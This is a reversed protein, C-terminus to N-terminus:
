TVATVECEKILAIGNWVSVMYTKGAEVTDGMTGTIGNITLVTASASPCSFMFHYQSTATVTVTLESKEGFSYSFPCPLLTHTNGTPSLIRNYVGLMTLIANIAEDTYTGVANSSARQTTDGAAKALGYFTAIHQNVITIPRRQATGDKVQASTPCALAIIGKYIGTLLELGYLGADSNNPNTGTFIVGPKNWEAYPINGVGDDLVSVGNIQVDQVVGAPGTQGTEGQPGQAPILTDVFASTQTDWVFWNGNSGIYPYHGAATEAAQAFLAALTKFYEASNEYHPDTPDVIPEGHHTGYIAGEMDDLMDSVTESRIVMGGIEEINEQTIVYDEGPDGQPGQAQVGTDVFAGQSLNWVWWNGNRIMPYHGTATVVEQVWSVWPAPPDGSGDLAPLIRTNYILSKAVVGGSTFVLECRGTGARALDGNQIQWYVIEDEATVFEPAVPYAAPDGPRQHLVTVTANPVQEFVDLAEDFCVTRYENEGLRGLQTWGNPEAKVYIM